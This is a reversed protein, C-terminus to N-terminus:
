HLTETSMNLFRQYEMNKLDYNRAENDLEAWFVNQFNNSERYSVLKHKKKTFYQELVTVTLKHFDFLWIEFVTKNQFSRPCSILILDITCLNDPNKCCTKTKLFNKLHHMRM